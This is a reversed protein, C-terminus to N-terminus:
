DLRRVLTISKRKNKRKTLDNLSCVPGCLIELDKNVFTRRYVRFPEWETKLFINIPISRNSEWWWINALEVFLHKLDTDKINGFDYITTISEDRNQVIGVYEINAYVCLSMFPYKESLQEIINNTGM